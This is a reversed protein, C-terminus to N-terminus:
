QQLPQIGGSDPHAPVEASGESRTQSTVRITVPYRGPRSTPSQPPQITLRVEQQGGPLVQIVPPPSPLWNNPVGEVSVRYHDLTTGKNLVVFTATTSSGPTVSLHVTEAFIGIRESGSGPAVVNEVQTTQAAAPRTVGPTVKRTKADRLRLWFDGIKMAKDPTWTEPEGPILRTEGLFTGNRSNLDSVWFKVGDYQVRAHRRSVKPSDLVIDNDKKV